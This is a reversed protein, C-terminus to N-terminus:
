AKIKQIIEATLGPILEQRSRFQRSAFDLWYEHWWCLKLFEQKTHNIFKDLIAVHEQKDMRRFEPVAELATDQNAEKQKLQHQWDEWLLNAAESNRNAWGLAAARGEMPLCKKEKALLEGKMKLFAAKEADNGPCLWEQKQLPKQLNKNRPAAFGKGEHTITDVVQLTGTEDLLTTCSEPIADQNTEKLLTTSPELIPDQNTEKLLTAPPEPIPDQNTEELLTAPPEPIPDEHTEDDHHHIKQQDCEPDEDLLKKPFVCMEEHFDTNLKSNIQLSYSSNCSEAVALPEANQEAVDPLPEAVDPLPEAVNPPAMVIYPNLSNASDGSHVNATKDVEKGWWVVVTNDGSRWSIFNKARLKSLARYFSREAIEWERCFQKINLRWEWGAARKAKILSYLYAETNFIKAKYSQKLEDPTARFFQEKKPETQNQPVTAIM